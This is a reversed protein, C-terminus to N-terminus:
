GRLDMRWLKDGFTWGWRPSTHLSGPRPDAERGEARSPLALTLLAPVVVVPGRPFGPLGARPQPRPGVPPVPHLPAARLLGCGVPRLARLAAHRCDVRLRRRRLAPPHHPPHGSSALTLPAGGRSPDPLGGHARHIPKDPSGGPIHGGRGQSAHGRFRTVGGQHSSSVTLPVGELGPQMECNGM